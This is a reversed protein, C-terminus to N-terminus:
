RGTSGFGGEGRETQDLADVLVLKDFSQMGGSVIQVLRQGKEVRVESDTTNWLAAILEGRYTKDIVGVSNMMMLGTKSISSRPVLWYHCQVGDSEVVAKVRMSVFKREGAAFVVDEPVFLDFGANGPNLPSTYFHNVDLPQLNLTLM